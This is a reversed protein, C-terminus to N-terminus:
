RLQHSLPGLTFTPSDARLYRPLEGVIQLPVDVTLGPGPFPMEQRPRDPSVPKAAVPRELIRRGVVVRYVPAGLPAFLQIRIVILDPQEPPPAEVEVSHLFRTPVPKEGVLGGVFKFRMADDDGLIYKPLFPEFADVGPYVSAVCHGIKALTRCLAFTDIAGTAFGNLGYKQWLLHYNPQV